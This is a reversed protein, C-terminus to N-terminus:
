ADINYRGKLLNMLSSNRTVYQGSSDRQDTKFGLSRLVRAVRRSSIGRFDSCSSELRSTLSTLHAVGDDSWCDNLALILYEQITMVMDQRTEPLYDEVIFESLETLSEPGFLNTFDILCQFIQADRSTLGLDTDRLPIEGVTRLMEVIRVKLGAAQTYAEDPLDNPVDSDTPKPLCVLKICRSNLAEDDIGERTIIIKPGYVQFEARRYGLPNKTDPVMRPVTIGKQYGSLFINRIERFGLIYDAEDVLLTGQKDQITRFISAVTPDIDFTPNKCVENILELRRNKGTQSDGTVHLIPFHRYQEYVHTASSYFVLLAIERDNTDVYQKYYSKLDEYLKEYNEMSNGGNKKNEIGTNQNELDIKMKNDGQFNFKYLEGRVL